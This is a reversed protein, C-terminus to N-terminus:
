TTRVPSTMPTLWPREYNLRFLEVIPAIDEEGRIYYTSWGTTPHLVRNRNMWSRDAYKVIDFVIWREVAMMLQYYGLYPFFYPQMIGLVM